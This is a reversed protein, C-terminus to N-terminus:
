QAASLVVVNKLFFFFFRTVLLCVKIPLKTLLPGWIKKFFFNQISFRYYKNPKYDEKHTYCLLCANRKADVRRQDLTLCAVFYTAQLIYLAFVGITAYICFTSLAPIVQFPCSEILKLRMGLLITRAIREIHYSM